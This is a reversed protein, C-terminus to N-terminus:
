RALPFRGILRRTGRPDGVNAAIALAGVDSVALSRLGDDNVGSACGSRDNAARGRIRRQGLAFGTSASVNVLTYDQCTRWHFTSAGILLNGDPTPVHFGGQGDLDHRWVVDGTTRALRVTVAEDDVDGTAAVDGGPLFTASRAADGISGGPPPEMRREWLLEGAADLLVVTFRATRDFLDTGEAHRAGVVVTGHGDVALGNPHSMKPFTRTWRTAGTGRDLRAVVATHTTSPTSSEGTVFVDDAPGMVVRFATNYRGSSPLDSRWRETGDTGRLALAVIRDDITAGVIVDGEPDVKMSAFGDRVTTAPLDYRWLVTGDAAALRVIAFPAGYGGLRRVVLVDDNATTLLTRVYGRDVDDFTHRWLERGRQASLKVVEPFRENGFRHETGGIVDGRSDIAVGGGATRLNSGVRVQWADAPRSAFLLVVAAFVIHHM